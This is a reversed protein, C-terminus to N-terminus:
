LCCMVPCVTDFVTSPRSFVRFLPVLANNGTTQVNGSKRVTWQTGARNGALLPRGEQSAGGPIALLLQLDPPDHDTCSLTQPACPSEELVMRSGSDRSPHHPCQRGRSAILSATPPPPKALTYCQTLPLPTRWEVPVVVGTKRLQSLAYASDEAYSCMLLVKPRSDQSTAGHCHYLHVVVSSAMQLAPGIMQSYLRWRPRARVCVM